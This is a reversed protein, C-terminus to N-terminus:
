PKQTSTHTAREFYSWQGEPAPEELPEWVKAAVMADVLKHEGEAVQIVEEILGAGLRNELESIAETTYKPEPDFKIDALVRENSYNSAGKMKKASPLREKASRIGEPMSQLPEGDWEARRSRADVEAENPMMVTPGASTNVFQYRDPDESVQLTIKEQWADWGVPKTQEVIALRHKTLAETSQRYVSSEPIKKLKDLTSNYHYLLTSRPSPHTLLGTLGTPTGAELYQGPKVSAFLRAAARM